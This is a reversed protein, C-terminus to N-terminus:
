MQVEEPECTVNLSTEPLLQQERQREIGAHKNNWTM